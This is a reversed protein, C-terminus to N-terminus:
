KQWFCGASVKLKFFDFTDDRSLGMRRLNFSNSGSDLRNYGGFTTVGLKFGFKKLLPSCISADYDSAKGKPYAFSHVTQGLVREIEHKSESIEHAIEGETLQSLPRHTVTHAGISFGDRSMQKVEDWEMFLGTVDELPVRFGAILKDLFQQQLGHTKDLIEWLARKSNERSIETDLPFVIEKGDLVLKVEKLTTRRVAQAIYDECPMTQRNIFGTTAFFTAPVKYKKLIPYANLFNDRYGDDFTIWVPHAPMKRSNEINSIIEKEGIPDYSEALFKIQEKFMHADICMHKYNVEQFEAAKVVRHYYLILLKRGNLLRFMRYGYRGALFGFLQKLEKKM